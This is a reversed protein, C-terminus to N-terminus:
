KPVLAGRPCDKRRSKRVPLIGTLIYRPLPRHQQTLFNVTQQHLLLVFLVGSAFDVFSSGTASKYAAMYWGEWSRAVSWVSLRRLRRGKSVKPAVRSVEELSERHGISPKVRGLRNPSTRWVPCSLWHSKYAEVVSSPSSRSKVGGSGPASARHSKPRSPLLQRPVVRKASVCDDHPPPQLRALLDFKNRRM